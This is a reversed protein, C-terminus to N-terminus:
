YYSLNIHLIGGKINKNMIKTFQSLLFLALKTNSFHNQYKHYKEIIKDFHSLSCIFITEYTLGGKKETGLLSNCLLPNLEGLFYSPNNQLIDGISHYSLIQKMKFYNGEKKTQQIHNSRFVKKKQIFKHDM